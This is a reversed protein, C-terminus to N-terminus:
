GEAGSQRIDGAEADSVKDGQADEATWKAEFAAMFAETPSYFPNPLWRPEWIRIRRWLRKLMTRLM